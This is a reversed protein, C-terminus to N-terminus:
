SFTRRVDHRVVLRTARNAGIPPTKPPKQGSIERSRAGRDCRHWPSAISNSNSHTQNVPFMDTHHSRVPICSSSGRSVPLVQM